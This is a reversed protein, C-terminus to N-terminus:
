KAQRADTNGLMADAASPLTASTMQVQLFSPKATHAESSSSLLFISTLQLMPLCIPKGEDETAHEAGCVALM